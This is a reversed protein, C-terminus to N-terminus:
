IGRAEMYAMVFEAAVQPVIANGYARLKGVRAPVGHALPFTGPEVRRAKGDACPILDYADWFRAGGTESAPRGEEAGVRGSEDRDAGNGAHGELRPQIPEGMWGDGCGSAIGRGGPETGREGRGDRAAHELGGSGGAANAPSGHRAAESPPKGQERGAGNSLGMGGLPSSGGAEAIRRGGDNKGDARGRDADETDALGGVRPGQECLPQEGSRPREHHSSVNSHALWYVRQRRHPAGVGAACLDATGVAYGLHELDVRVGALWKRGDLSEVQEGFVVPPRCEAILRHFAPWLHREDGVGGAKGAVSFPQCPCSGTWVPRDAPWGALRLALPWGGIGAFFHAQVIGELDKAQVDVISREDVLGKQIHGAEQLNRLWQAPYKDFENYYNM